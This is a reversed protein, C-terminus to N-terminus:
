KYDDRSNSLFWGSLDVTSLSPNYLEIADELPTDTHTLVENIVANNPPLYNSEGPSVTTTFSVLNTTGDPFRGQSIGTQQNTFTVGTVLIGAGSYLGIAEGSKSLKFRVHDAPPNAPDDAIFQLY